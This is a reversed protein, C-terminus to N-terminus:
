AVLFPPITLHIIYRNICGYFNINVFVEYCFTLNGVFPISFANYLLQM